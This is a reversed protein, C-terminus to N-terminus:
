TLPQRRSKQVSRKAMTSPSFAIRRQSRHVFFTLFTLSKSAARARRPSGTFTQYELDKPTVNPNVSRLVTTREILIAAGAGSTVVM